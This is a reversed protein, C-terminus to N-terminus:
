RAPASTKAAKARLEPLHAKLGQGPCATGGVHDAHGSIKAAPVHYRAALWLVIRDLAALQAPAPQEQDFNGEVVIQVRNATDYPTNSDGAFGLNRGEGIRGAADVYFHYPVDGWPPKPTTGVLGASQSFTQLSRLKERLTLQPRRKEGTHHIVIERPTQPRMLTTDAPKASWAARPVINPATVRDAALVSGTSMALGPLVLCLVAAHRRIQTKM